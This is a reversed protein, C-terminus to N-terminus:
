ASVPNGFRNPRRSGPEICLWLQAIISGAAAGMALASHSNLPDGSLGALGIWISNLGSLGVDHLRKVTVAIATWAALLAFGLAAISQVPAQRLVTIPDYPIFGVAMAWGVLALLVFPGRGTRGKMSFLVEGIDM